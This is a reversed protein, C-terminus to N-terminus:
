DSLKRMKLFELVENIQKRYMYIIGITLVVDASIGCIQMMGSIAALFIIAWWGSSKWISLVLSM